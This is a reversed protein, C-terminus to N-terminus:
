PWVPDALWYIVVLRSDTDAIGAFDMFDFTPGNKAAWGPNWVHVVFAACLLEGHSWGGTMRWFEDPDFERPQWGQLKRELCPFSRALVLIKETPTKRSNCNLNM